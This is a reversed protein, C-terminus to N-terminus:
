FKTLITKGSQERSDHEFLNNVIDLIEPLVKDQNKEKFGEIEYKVNCQSHVIVFKSKNLIDFKLYPSTGLKNEFGQVMDKDKFQQPM